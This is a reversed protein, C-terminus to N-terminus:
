ALMCCLKTLQNTITRRASGTGLILHSQGAGEQRKSILILEDAIPFRTFSRTLLLFLPLSHFFQVPFLGSLMSFSFGVSSLLTTCCRSLQCTAELSSVFTSCAKYAPSVM